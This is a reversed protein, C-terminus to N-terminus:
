CTTRSNAWRRLRTPRSGPWKGENNNWWLYGYNKNLSQSPRAAAALWDAPVIQRKQWRGDRLVLLGFRALARATIRLGSYPLPQDANRDWSWDAAPSASRDFYGRTLFQDISQGTAASVAAHPAVPRHQQLGM